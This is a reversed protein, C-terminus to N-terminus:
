VLSSEKLLFPATCGGMGRFTVKKVTRLPIQGLITSFEM